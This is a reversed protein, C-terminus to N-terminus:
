QKLRQSLRASFRKIFGKARSYTIALLSHAQERQPTINGSVFNNSSLKDFFIPQWHEKITNYTITNLISPMFDLLPPRTSDFENNIAGLGLATIGHFYPVYPNAGIANYLIQNNSIDNFLATRIMKIGGGYNTTIKNEHILNMCGNDLSIGPLKMSSSGDELLPYESIFDAQIEEPSLKSREGNLSVINRHFINYCSGWDFCIGEKNNNVLVTDEILCNVAGELYIGQARCHTITCNKTLIHHPRRKKKDIPLAEHYREPIDEPTIVLSTSCLHIGADQNFYGRSRSCTCDRIEGNYSHGIILIGASLNNDFLCGSIRFNHGNNIIVGSGEANSCRCDSVTFASSDTIFLMNRGSSCNIGEISFDECGAIEIFFKNNHSPTILPLSSRITFHNCNNVRISSHRNLTEQNLILSFHDKESLCNNKFPYTITESDNQKKPSHNAIQAKIENGELPIFYELALLSM